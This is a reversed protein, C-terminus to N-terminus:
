AALPPEDQSAPLLKLRARLLQHRLELLFAESPEIDQPLPQLLSITQREEEDRTQETKDM